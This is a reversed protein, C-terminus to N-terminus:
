ESVNDQHQAFWDKSKISFLAHKSFFFLFIGIEYDKNKKPECWRDLVSSALMIFMVDGIRNVSYPISM